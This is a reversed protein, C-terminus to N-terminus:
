VMFSTVYNLLRTVVFAKALKGHWLLKGRDGTIIKYGSWALVTYLVLTLLSVSVHFLLLAHGAPTRVSEIVTEVAQLNLEIYLVLVLDAAFAFCMTPIHVVPNRRQIIGFALIGLILTSVLHTVTMM